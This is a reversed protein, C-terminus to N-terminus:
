LDAEARLGALEYFCAVVGVGDDILMSSFVRRRCFFIICDFSDKTVALLEEVSFWFFTAGYATKLM